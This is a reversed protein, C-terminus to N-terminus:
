GYGDAKVAELLRGVADAEGGGRRLADLPTLGGLAGDPTLLFDLTAWAGMGLESATALVSPLAAPVTGDAGIQAAPYRWDGAVRVALLQNARRRKDVAQRSIGGLARAAQAASLLGGARSALRERESAGRALADALPDLDLVADPVASGGLARAVAGYDTPAELAQALEELSASRALRELAHGARRRFTDRVLEGETQARSTRASQGGSSPAPPTTGATMPAETAKHKVHHKVM